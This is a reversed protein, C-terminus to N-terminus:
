KTFPGIDLFEPSDRVIISFFHKRKICDMLSEIIQLSFPEQKHAGIGPFSSCIIGGCPTLASTSNILHVFIYKQVRFYSRVGFLLGDRFGGFINVKKILSQCM